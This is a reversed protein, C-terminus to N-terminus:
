RKHVKLDKKIGSTKPDVVDITPGSNVSNRVGFIAGDTRSFWKGGYTAPSEVLAAGNLLDGLLQDFEVPTVTRIRSNAGRQGVYKGQPMLIDELKKPPKDAALIVRGDSGDPSFDFRGRDNHWANSKASPKPGYGTAARKEDDTLFTAAQLRSWLADREPALADVQDLDARLQLQTDSYAPALWDSLSRHAKAAIPLVTNRWFTRQAEAYNSFTNDGPIGLLMPPIGLALAIERAAAHKGETFDMEAPTLSLPKWDLGGELLL